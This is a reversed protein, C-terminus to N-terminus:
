LVIDKLTTVKIGESFFGDWPTLPISNIDIGIDKQYQRVAERLRTQEDGNLTLSQIRAIDTTKDAMIIHVSVIGKQGSRALRANTQLWRELSWITSFWIFTYGGFQLNLGHAASQPHILLNEIEGANWRDIISQTNKNSMVTFPIGEKRFRATIRDRDHTFYYPIICNQDLTNVLEVLKDLKATHLEKWSKKGYEDTVHIAGNCIQWCMMSKAGGNSALIPNELMEFLAEKELVKYHQMVDHPLDVYHLFPPLMKPLVGYDAANLEVTVDAILEHIRQPGGEAIQWLPRVDGEEDNLQYKDQRKYV